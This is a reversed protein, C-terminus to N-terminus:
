PTGIGKLEIKAQQSIIVKVVELIRQLGQAELLFYDSLISSYLLRKTIEVIVDYLLTSLV